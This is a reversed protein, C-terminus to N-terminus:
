DHHARPRSASGGGAYVAQYARLRKPTRGSGLDDRFAVSIDLVLRDYVESDFDAYDPSLTGLYEALSEHAEMVASGFLLFVRSQNTRFVGMVRELESKTGSDLDATTALNKLDTEALDQFDRTATLMTTAAELRQDMFRVRQEHKRNSYTTVYDLVWKLAIGVAGSALAVALVNEQAWEIFGSM